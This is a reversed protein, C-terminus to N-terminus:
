YSPRWVVIFNSNKVWLNQVQISFVLKCKGALLMLGIGARCLSLKPKKVNVGLVVSSLAAIFISGILLGRVSNIIIDDASVFVENIKKWRFTKLEKFCLDALQQVVPDVRCM